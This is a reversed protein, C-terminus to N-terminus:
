DSVDDTEKDALATAEKTAVKMAIALANTM